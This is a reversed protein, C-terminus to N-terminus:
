PNSISQQSPLLSRSSQYLERSGELAEPKVGVMTLARLIMKPSNRALGRAFWQTATKNTLVRAVAGLSMMGALFGAPIGVAPGLLSGGLASGGAAMAIEGVNRTMTYLPPAFKEQAVAAIRGFKRWSDVLGPDDFVAKLTEDGYKDMLDIFRKGDFYREGAPTNKYSQELLEQTFARQVEKWESKPMAKKVVRPATVAGPKIFSTAIYEPDKEVLKRILKDNFVEAGQRYFASAKRYLQLAQPNLENASKQMANDVLGAAKKTIGRVL